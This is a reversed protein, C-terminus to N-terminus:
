LTYLRNKGDNHQRVFNAFLGFLVPLLLLHLYIFQLQLLPLATVGLLM